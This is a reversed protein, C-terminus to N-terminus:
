GCKSDGCTMCMLCGEQYVLNESGCSPCKTVSSKTGNPIYGKLARKVGSKWSNINEEESRMHDVINVVEVLPMGSRLAGSILRAYNWYEKDFMSSISLLIQPAGQADVYHLDYRSIGDADYVKAVSGKAIKAPLRLDKDIDAISGTFIEYPKGNYLGVFAIWKQNKNNFRIIDADLTQPRKKPPAEISHTAASTKPPETNVLVGDRSGDRYVTIGKCGAEWATKYVIEVMEETIKNPLNVTASISHDVWSQMRGQLKVKSAWDICDSTANGYPSQAVIQQWEENPLNKIRVIDEDSYGNAELWSQFKHHLVAYEEFADGQKDVFNVEVNKDNHNIKRRRKYRLNFV